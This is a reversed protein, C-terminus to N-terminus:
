TERLFLRVVQETTEEVLIKANQFAEKETMPANMISFYALINHDHCVKADKGIGGNVAVVPCSFQKARQAVGVPVKGNVTQSDMCGEGTIILNAKKAYDDFPLLDLVIDIGSFLRAGTFALLGFGLGGAAGSGPIHKWNNQMTEEVTASFIELHKELQQVDTKSAGKQPGYVMSAGNNGLLPNSVDCAVRIDVSRLRPDIKSTDIRSITHFNEPIPIVEQNNADLFTVGLAYAMGAGADNTASGGIGVIIEQVGQELAALILQGTGLTSTRLPNREQNDLLYLGSAAAMEIIATHGDRVLGFTADIEKGVPNKVRVTKLEGQLQDVLVSTLGEGGDAVPLAVVPIDLSINQIGRIMSDCVQQSSLSGKFSDPALLIM